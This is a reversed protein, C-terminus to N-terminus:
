LLPLLRRLLHLVLLQVLLQLLDLLLEQLLLQLLGLDRLQDCLLRLLALEALLALLALKALLPKALSLLSLEPRLAPQTVQDALNPLRQAARDAAHETVGAEAVRYAAHRALKAAHQREARVRDRGRIRLLRLLLGLLGLLRLLRGITVIRHLAIGVQALRGQM